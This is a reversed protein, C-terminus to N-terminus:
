SSSETRFQKHNLFFTVLEYRNNVGLKQYLHYLHNKM